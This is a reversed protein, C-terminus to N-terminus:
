DGDGDGSNNEGDGDGGKDKKERRKRDGGDEEGEDQGFQPVTTTTPSPQPLDAALRAAAALIRDAAEPTLRGTARADTTTRVLADLADRATAYRQGALAEDVRALDARLEPVTEGPPATDACGGSALLLVGALVLNRLWRPSM